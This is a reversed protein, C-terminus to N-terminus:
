ERGLKENVAKQIIKTIEAGNEDLAPRLFPHPAVRGVVVRKSGKGKVLAHGFEVFLGWFAKTDPGVKARVFDPTNEVLETTIHDQMSWGRKEVRHINNAADEKVVDAADMIGESLGEQILEKARQEAGILGKANIKVNVLGAQKPM